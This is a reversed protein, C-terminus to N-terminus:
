RGQRAGGEPHTYQSLIKRDTGYSIAKAPCVNICGHCRECASGWVPRKEDMRINGVGCVRACEGCGVCDASVRFRKGSGHVFRRFVANVPPAFAGEYWRSPGEPASSKKGAVSAVIEEITGKSSELAADAKERADADYFVFYNDPMTVRFGASLRIGKRALIGAIQLNGVGASAGGATLVSFAYPNGSIALGRLFSHAISPLGWFYLPFVFGLRETASARVTTEANPASAIKAIDVLECEGLREALRRAVSLSNGTGSYYYIANKM